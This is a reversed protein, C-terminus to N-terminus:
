FVQPLLGFTFALPLFLITMSILEKLSFFFNSRSYLNLWFPAWYWGIDNNINGSINEDSKIICFIFSTSNENKAWTSEILTRKEGFKLALMDILLYLLTLICFYVPRSYTILWNFGHVPSAADPQVSKLM